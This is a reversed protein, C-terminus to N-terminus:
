WPTPALVLYSHAPRANLLGLLLSCRTLPCKVSGFVSASSGVSALDPHVECVWWCHLSSMLLWKDNNWMRGRPANEKKIYFYTSHKGICSHDGDFILMIRKKKKWFIKNRGSKAAALKETNLSNAPSLEYYCTENLQHQDRKQSKNNVICIYDTSKRFFM